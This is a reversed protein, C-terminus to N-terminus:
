DRLLNPQLASDFTTRIVTPVSCSAPSASLLLHLVGAIVSCDTLDVVMTSSVAVDGWSSIMAVSTVLAGDSDDSVAPGDSWESGDSKRAVVM